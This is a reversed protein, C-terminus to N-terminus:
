RSGIVGECRSAFGGRRNRSTHEKEEVIRLEGIVKKKGSGGERSIYYGTTLCNREGRGRGGGGKRGKEGRGCSLGRL